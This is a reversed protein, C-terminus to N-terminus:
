YEPDKWLRKTNISNKKGIKQKTENTPNIKGIQKTARSAVRPDTEKTLGKSWSPKGKKKKAMEAIRPDTEKTLGASWSPKGKSDKRACIKSCYRQTDHLKCEFTINCDLLACTRIERPLRKPTRRGKMGKWYCEHSCYKQTSDISVKFTNNCTSYQCIRIEKVLKRKNPIKTGKRNHGPLFRNGPKTVRLGCEGCECFPLENM